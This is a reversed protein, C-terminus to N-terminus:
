GNLPDPNQKTALLAPYYTKPNENIIGREVMLEPLSLVSQAVSTNNM